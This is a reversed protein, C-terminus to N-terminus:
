SIYMLNNRQPVTSWLDQETASLIRSAYVHPRNATDESLHAGLLWEKWAIGLNVLDELNEPLSM